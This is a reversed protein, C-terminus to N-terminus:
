QGGQLRQADNMNAAGNAQTGRQSQSRKCAQLTSLMFVNLPKTGGDIHETAAIGTNVREDDALSVFAKVQGSGSAHEAATLAASLPSAHVQAGGM